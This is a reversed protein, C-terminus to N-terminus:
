SDDFEPAGQVRQEPPTDEVFLQLAVTLGLVFDLPSSASVLFTSYDPFGAPPKPPRQTGLINVQASRYKDNILEDEKIKANTSFYSNIQITFTKPQSKISITDSPSDIDQMPQNAKGWVGALLSPLNQGDVEVNVEIM